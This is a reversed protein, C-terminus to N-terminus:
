RPGSVAIAYPLGDITRAPAGVADALEDVTLATSLVMRHDFRAYARHLPRPLRTLRAFRHMDELSGDRDMEVVILRGGPRLVRRCEAMGAHRDPWHKISCSSVVADFTADAFPLAAAVARALPAVRPRSPPCPDIGVAGLRATLRGGGCGVDLVRRADGLEADIAPGVAEAVAAGLLRDYIWAEVPV